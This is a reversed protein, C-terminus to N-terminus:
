RLVPPVRLDPAVSAAVHRAWAELYRAAREAEEGAGEGGRRPPVEEVTALLLKMVSATECPHAVVWCGRSAHPHDACPAFVGLPGLGLGPSGEASFSGSGEARERERERERRRENEEGADSDFPIPAADLLGGSTADDDAHGGGSDSDTAANRVRASTELEEAIEAHTLAERPPAAFRGSALLLPTGYAPSYAVRYSRLYADPPHPRASAAEEDARVAADEEADEEADESVGEEANTRRRRLRYLFGRPDDSEVELFGFGGSPDRDPDPVWRARTRNSRSADAESAGSAAATWREALLAAGLAFAAPTLTGTSPEPSM